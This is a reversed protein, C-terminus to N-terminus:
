SQLVSANRQAVHDNKFSTFLGKLEGEMEKKRSLASTNFLQPDVTDKASKQAALWLIM